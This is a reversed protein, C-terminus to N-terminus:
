QGGEGEPGGNRKHELSKVGPATGRTAEELRAVAAEEAGPALHAYRETTTISAAAALRRGRKGTVEFRLAGIKGTVRLKKARVLASLMSAVLGEPM